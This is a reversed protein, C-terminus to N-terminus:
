LTIQIYGRKPNSSYLSVLLTDGEVVVPVGATHERLSDIRMRQNAMRISDAANHTSLAADLESRLEIERLKMEQVLMEMEHLRSADDTSALTDAPTDSFTTHIIQEAKQLLQANAAFSLGMVTTLLLFLSFRKM